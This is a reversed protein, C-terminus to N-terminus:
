SGWPQDRLSPVLPEGSAWQSWTVEHNALEFFGWIKVISINIKLFYYKM